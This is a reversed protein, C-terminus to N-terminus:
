SFVYKSSFHLKFYFFFSVNEIGLYEFDDITDCCNRETKRSDSLKFCTKKNRHNHFDEETFEKGSKRSDLSCESGAPSRSRAPSSCYIIREQEEDDDDSTIETM